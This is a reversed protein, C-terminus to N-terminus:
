RSQEHKIRSRTPLQTQSDELWSRYCGIQRHGQLKLHIEVPHIANHVNINLISGVGGEGPGFYLEGSLVKSLPLDAKEGRLSWAIAGSYFIINYPSCL